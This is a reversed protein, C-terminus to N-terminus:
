KRNVPSPTKQTSRFSVLDKRGAASRAAVGTSSVIRNTPAAHMCRHMVKAKMAACIAPAHVVRRRHWCSAPGYAAHICVEAHLGADPVRFGTYALIQGSAVIDTRYVHVPSVTSCTIIPWGRNKLFVWKVAM